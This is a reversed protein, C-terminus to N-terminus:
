QEGRYVHHRWSCHVGYLGPIHTAAYVVSDTTQGSIDRCPRVPKYNTTSFLQIARVIVEECQLPSTRQTVLEM